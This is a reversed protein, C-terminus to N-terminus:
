CERVEIAAVRGQELRAERDALALLAGRHCIIVITMSGRLRELAAAIATENDADLASTAEDLILLAPDRLLARALMLRQREGGSLRQGGDGVLTELGQPLTHVFTASAHELAAHLRAEDADPAAWLLNERVTATLLVPDQEVYAVRQRWARRSAPDLPVGDISVGGDDPSILGALLDALTSKGAGSPGTLALVEHRALTLTIGVLAPREQGDFRVTVDALAIEREFAPPALGPVAPERAAEAREILAVAADLAPRSHRWHLWAQHLSGLLPMARAFLAVPPLIAAAQAGGRAVALYVAVALALGGGIQLMAQALGQDKLFALQLRRMAALGLSMRESAQRQGDLLKIARVAALGESLSGHVEAYSRSLQEGVSQARRRLGSYALLVLMAGAGGALTLVPSIALAALGVGGLTAVIAMASFAQQMGFGIRDADSILLSANETRRFSQLTRWDCDLLARWARMRLGDVLRSEVHQVMLGRAQIIVARLGLLAVFLALLPGIGQPVHLARLLMSLRSTGPDADLAELLPVLLLLGLGETLAALLILIALLAVAPALGQAMVLRIPGTAYSRASPPDSTM